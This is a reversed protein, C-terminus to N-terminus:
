ALKLHQEVKHFIQYTLDQEQFEKLQAKVKGKIIFVRKDGFKVKNLYKQVMLYNYKKIFFSVKPKSFKKTLFLINKEQTVM